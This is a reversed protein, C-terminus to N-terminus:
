EEIDSWGVMEISIGDESEEYSLLGRDCLKRVSTRFLNKNYYKTLDKWTISIKDLDNKRDWLFVYVKSVSDLIELLFPKPPLLEFNQHVLM